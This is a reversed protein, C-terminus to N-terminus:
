PHALWTSIYASCIHACNHLVSLASAAAHLQLQLPKICTFSVCSSVIVTQRSSLLSKCDYVNESIRGGAQECM